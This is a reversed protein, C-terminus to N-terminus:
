RRLMDTVGIRIQLQELRTVTDYAPARCYGAEFRYITQRSLQAERAIETPGLGTAKLAAIISAVKDSTNDMSSIM